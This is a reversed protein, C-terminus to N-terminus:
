EVSFPSPIYYDKLKTSRLIKSLTVLLFLREVRHEWDQVLTSM